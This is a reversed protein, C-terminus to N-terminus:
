PMASVKDIAAQINETNDGPVPWITVKNPVYPINVGGGKYGAHSFDPIRNGLSDAIYVLKGDAGPYVLSTAPPIDKDQARGLYINAFLMVAVASLFKIRM